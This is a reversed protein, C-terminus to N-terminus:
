MRCAIFGASNSVAAMGFTACSTLLQLVGHGYRPGYSDCVAPPSPPTSAPVFSSALSPASAPVRALGSGSMCGNM